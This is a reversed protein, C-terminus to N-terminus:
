TFVERAEVVSLLTHQFWGLWSAYGGTLKSASDRSGSDSGRFGPVSVRVWSGLGPVQFGSGLFRFGLGSDWILSAVRPPRLRIDRYGFGSIRFGFCSVRFGCDSIRSGFCPLLVRHDSGYTETSSVRFRFGSIQFEFGSDRIGSGSIRFRFGFDSVRLGFGSVRFKFGSVM